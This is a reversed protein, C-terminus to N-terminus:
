ERERAALQLLRAFLAATLVLLGFPYVFWDLAWATLSLLLTLAILILPWDM